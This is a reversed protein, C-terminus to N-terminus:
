LIHSAKVIVSESEKGHDNFKTTSNSWVHSGNNIEVFRHGNLLTALSQPHVIKEARVKITEDETLVLPDLTPHGSKCLQYFLREM